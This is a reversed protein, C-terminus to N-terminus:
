QVEGVFYSCIDQFVKKARIQFVESDKETASPRISVGIQAHNRRNVHVPANAPPEDGFEFTVDVPMYSELPKLFSLMGRQGLRVVARKQEVELIKGQHEDVYGRLKFVTLNATMCALFKGTFLWPDVVPMQFESETVAKGRQLRLTRTRNRGEGKALYLAEDARKKVTEETDTAEWEAVGFSASLNNPQLEAIRLRTL